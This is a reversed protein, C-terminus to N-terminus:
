RGVAGAAVSDRVLRGATAPDELYPLHARDTLRVLRAAPVTRALFACEDLIAPVDLDGVVVTTPATVAELRSWADLGSGGADEGGNALITASMELALARAAGGVRGERQAPGDLWIRTEIRNALELDGQGVADGLADFHRRTDADLEVDDPSGSVAPAFLVLGAVREPESLAFDMAVGGGMSSGVLWVRADGLADVVCRLDGLHTFPTTSPPTEGFGRRDYAIVMGIGALTDAMSGFSRRDCVGAHLLVVVPGTGAWRDATLRAGDVELTERAPSWAVAVVTSAAQAPSPRRPRRV